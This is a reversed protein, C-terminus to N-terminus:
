RGTGETAMKTLSFLLNFNLVIFLLYFPSPVFSISFIIEYAL